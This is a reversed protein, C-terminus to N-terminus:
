RGGRAMEPAASADVPAPLIRVVPAGRRADAFAVIANTQMAVKKALAKAAVSAAATELEDHSRGSGIAQTRDSVAMPETVSFLVTGTRVDVLDAQALGHSAVTIGPALFIGLVTPYLAAWGNAHTDDEFRQSYLVLYRLRYRAAILRLGELGGVNPLDTSIDTVQSFYPLGVLAAALDRSAIARTSISAPEKPEFPEALPVVGVRAPLQLDIPSELVHQLQDETLSGSADKAFLSRGLVQPAAAAAVASRPAEAPAAAGCAALNFALPLLAALSLKM